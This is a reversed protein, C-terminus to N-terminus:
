TPAQEWSRYDIGKVPMGALGLGDRLREWDERRAIPYLHLMWRLIADDTPPDAGFWHQRVQQLFTKAEEAAAKTDGLQALAAARWARVTRHYDLAHDSAEVAAKYDGSLFHVDVLYAWHMKSPVLAMDRALQVLEASRDSRGCFAYLLAASFHTWPDNPNLEFATQISMAAQTHQHAMVNAWALSRHANMNSPDLEVARRAFEIAQRERERTRLKGPYVIHETNHMDALGCYAPVFTPADDLIGLFEASARKWHELSFTRILTQSRLWRDYIGLSIGSDESLRRLRDASLNVNLALAIKQVVQRQAEFWSELKLEFGDSWVYHSDGAQKLMLLVHLVSGHQHVNMQLEYRSAVRHSEDMSLEGVPADTVQWERFRILSAILHQRFGTVLHSKEPSVEHMAVPPLSIALRAAGRFRPPATISGPLPTRPANGSRIDAALAKTAASPEMEYDRALVDSLTRYIRLAGAADGAAVRGQMLRRCADEHTQDLNLLATALRSEAPSGAPKAAMANELAFLLRDRLSNRKAVLWVRFAPDVGELGILLEDLLNRRELLLPHAEGAEAAKLVEFVDVQIAEPDLGIEHTGFRVGACRAAELSVRLDRLLPTLLGRARAESSGSWLLGVLRERTELRSEGLAVYALAARAKLNRLPVDQKGAQLSVPGLLHLRPLSDPSAAQPQPPPVFPEENGAVLLQFMRIPSAINKVQREGMDHFKADVRGNVYHRANDSILVGGPQCLQELRAAINVHDGFIDHEEVIVDGVDIGVRFLLRQQPPRLVADQMLAEQFELASRVAEVASSFEALFGDGTSKVIRGQHRRISPVIFSSMAANFAAHTSEEDEHMLRSYGAVDAAMVAALRRAM